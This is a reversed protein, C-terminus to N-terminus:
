AEEIHRRNPHQEILVLGTLAVVTRCQPRERHDLRKESLDMAACDAFVNLGLRDPVSDSITDKEAWRCRAYRQQRLACRFLIRDATADGYSLLISRCNGLSHTPRELRGPSALGELRFGLFVATTVFLWATLNVIAGAFFIIIRGSM